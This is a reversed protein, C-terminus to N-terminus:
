WYYCGGHVPPPVVMLPGTGYAGYYLEPYYATYASPYNYLRIGYSYPHYGYSYPRYGYSYPYTYSPRYFYYSYPRYYHWAQYPAYYDPRSLYGYSYRPRHSHGGYGAALLTETPANCEQYPDACNVGPTLPGYNRSQFAPIDVTSITQTVNPVVGPASLAPAPLTEDSQRAVFKAPGFIRQQKGGATTEAFATTGVAFLAAMVVLSLTTFFNRRNRLHVHSTM